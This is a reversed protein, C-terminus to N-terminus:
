GVNKYNTVTIGPFYTTLITMYGAGLEGLNKAGWQSMGVGHGWGRGDFVFNGSTGKLTVNEYSVVKPSKIMRDLETAYGHASLNVNFTGYASAISLLGTSDYTRNGNVTAVTLKGAGDATARGGPTVVNVTTDGTGDPIVFVTRKVTEGAKGVVFNASYLGFASRVKDARPITVTKGNTDTVKAQYVYSSNEALVLEIKSVSGSLSYGRSSLRDCLEKPTYEVTWAGRYANDYQEWPTAIATLYPSTSGWTEKVGCTCGGTVASYYAQVIKGGYSMVMGASGRVAEVFDSTVGRRGRYVQCNSTNCLDFGYNGHRNLSTLTYSRVAVAFAKKTEAPYFSSIENPMVGEIYDELKIVNVLQLTSTNRTFKFIGGYSYSDQITLYQSESAPKIFLAGSTEEYLVTGSSDTVAISTSSSVKGSACTVKVTTQTLSKKASFVNSDSFSGIQFGSPCNLTYSSRATDAWYLGIRVYTDDTAANSRFALSAIITYFVGGVMLLALIICIIRVILKNRDQKSRKKDSM